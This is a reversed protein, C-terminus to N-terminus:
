RQGVRLPLVRAGPAGPGADRPQLVRRVGDRGAAARALMGLGATAASWSRRRAAWMLLLTGAGLAFWHEGPIAPRQDDYDKLRRLLPPLDM